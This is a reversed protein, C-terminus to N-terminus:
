INLKIIQTLRAINFITQLSSSHHIVNSKFNENINTLKSKYNKKNNCLGRWPTEKGCHGKLAAKRRKEEM